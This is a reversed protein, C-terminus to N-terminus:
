PSYNFNVSHSMNVSSSPTTRQLRIIRVKRPLLLSHHGLLNHKFCSSRRFVSGMVYCTRLHCVGCASATFGRYIRWSLLSFGMLFTQMMRQHDVQGLSTIRRGRVAFM